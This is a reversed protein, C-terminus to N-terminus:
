DSRAPSPSVPRPRILQIPDPVRQWLADCPDPKLVVTSIWGRCEGYYRGDLSVRRIWAPTVPDSEEVRPAVIQMVMKRLDSGSPIKEKPMAVVAVATAVPVLALLRLFKM